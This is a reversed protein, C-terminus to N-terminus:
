RTLDIEGLDRIEDAVRVRSLQETFQHEPPRSGPVVWVPYLDRGRVVQWGPGVDKLQFLKFTLRHDTRRYEGEHPAHTLMSDRDRFFMVFVSAFNGRGTEGGMRWIKKIPWYPESNMITQEIKKRDEDTLSCEGRVLEVGEFLTNRYITVLDYQGMPLGRFEFARGDESITGEYARAQDARPIALIQELPDTPRAIRGKIGGTSSEDPPTYLRVREAQGGTAPAPTFAHLFSSLLLFVLAFLLPLTPAKM